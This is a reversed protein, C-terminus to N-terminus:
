VPLERRDSLSGTDAQLSAIVFANSLLGFLCALPKVYSRYMSYLGYTSMGGTRDEEMRKGLKRM